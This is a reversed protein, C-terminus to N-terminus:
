VAALATLLSDFYYDATEKILEEKQKHVKDYVAAVQMGANKAAMVGEITDEFVLCHKPETKLNRAAMLFVDPNPKGKGVECSTVITSFFRTLNKSNLYELVIERNNSTGVGLTFGLSHVKNIFRYAGEKLIVKDMYIDMCLDVWDAVITDVSDTIGFVEKFYIASETFSKGGLDHHLHEKLYIGKKSLYYEDIHEWVWLSDILTGDLDFIISKKDKLM